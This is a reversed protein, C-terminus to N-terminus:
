PHSFSVGQYYHTIIWLHCPSHCIVFTYIRTSSHPQTPDHLLLKSLKDPRILLHIKYCPLYWLSLIQLANDSPVQRGTQDKHLYSAFFPSPFHLRYYTHRYTLFSFNLLTIEPCCILEATIQVPLTNQSLTYTLHQLLFGYVDLSICLLKTKPLVKPSPLLWASTTVSFCHPADLLTLGGFQAIPVLEKAM